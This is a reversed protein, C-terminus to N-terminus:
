AFTIRMLSPLESTHEESRRAMQPMAFLSIQEPDAFLVAHLTRRVARDRARHPHDLDAKGCREVLAARAAPIARNRRSGGSVRVGRADAGGLRHDARDLNTSLALLHADLARWLRPAPHRPDDRRLERLDSSCLDSSWDSIRM